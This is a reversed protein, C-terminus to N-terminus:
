ASDRKEYETAFVPVLLWALAIGTLMTIGFAHLAPTRSLALLGFSLITSVASLGVALWPTSDRREANEQMFIGYDIGVGLLLMLALVHFMQLPQGCYGLIAVTAISTLASPAMVQWAKGRYRLYLIAFVVLYAGLVVWGMYQRYRALM